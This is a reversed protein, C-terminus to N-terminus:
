SIMDVMSMDNPDDKMRPEAFRSFTKLVIRCTSILLVSIVVVLVVAKIMHFEHLFWGKKSMTSNDAVEQLTWNLSANVDFTNNRTAYHRAAQHCLPM